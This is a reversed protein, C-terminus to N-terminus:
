SILEVILKIKNKLAPDYHMGVIRIRGVFGATGNYFGVNQFQLNMRNGLSIHKFTEGVNLATLAFNRRPDKSLGLDVRSNDFLTQPSTVNQYERSAQRLGYSGISSQDTVATYPKSTWTDGDGFGFIYNAIPGDEVLIGDIWEINGGGKGEHLMIPTDTGIKALWDVYVLLKGSDTLIPRWQYEEDSREQIRNLDDNLSTPHLTEERQGGIRSINGATIITAEAANVKNLIKLFIDGATGQLLEEPPGIRWGFVHEPTYASITVQRPSWKRPTDIVGVWAPLASNQILIWNGFNLVSNNVIQTKRSAYTFQARGEDGIAWSREVRAQFQALGHGRRDFIMVTDAPVTQPASM